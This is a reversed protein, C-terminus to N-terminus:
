GHRVLALRRALDSRLVGAPDAARQVARFRELDPYMAALLDPRLRADKALYVRGGAAAVREDLEDLLPALGPWRAPIDVALTWGPIPFSLMGRGRGLRKLVALAVPCRVAHLRAVIRELVDAASEPVVFQYQVFGGAGYLRNWDGITDLPHFFAEPSALGAAARGAHWRAANLARLAPRRILGAPIGDPVHPSPRSRGRHSGAAHDGCDVVGRGVAAPPACLDIWAVCYRHREEAAAVARLTHALDRTRVRETRIQSGPVRLLRLTAETVVGTLGMGGATADFLDSDAAPTLRRLEGAGTCLVIEGVHDCFGGDVHHNKGHVDAAIAGGVTVHATGPTVGVFWGVPLTRRMVAGISVGAEVTISGSDADLELVRDMGTMEIVDGGAAQAADGYSRGLGRAIGGPRHLGAVIRAVDGADRARHVRARTPATRGWGTLLREGRAAAVTMQVAGPVRGAGRPRAPLRRLLRPRGAGPLPRRSSSNPVIKAPPAAGGHGYTNFTPWEPNIDLEMARVAGAHIMIAALTAATQYDAAAYILNGHRDIGVAQAGCTSPTASRAAGCPRTRQQARTRHGHDVILPVNQRALVIGPPASSGGRWDIINM